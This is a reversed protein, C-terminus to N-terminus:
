SRLISVRWHSFEVRVGALQPLIVVTDVHCM